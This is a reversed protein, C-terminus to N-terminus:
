RAFPKQFTYIQRRTFDVSITERSRWKLISWALIAGTRNRVRSAPPMTGFEQARDVQFYEGATAPV